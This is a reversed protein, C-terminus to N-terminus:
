ALATQKKLIAISQYISVAAVTIPGAVEDVKSSDGIQRIISMRVTAELQAREEVNLDKLEAGIANFGEIATQADFVTMVLDRAVTFFSGKAVANKAIIGAVTAIFAIFEQSEKIGVGSASGKLELQEKM